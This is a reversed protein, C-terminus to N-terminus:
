YGKGFICDIELTSTSGCPFTLIFLWWNVSRGLYNLPDTCVSHASQINPLAYWLFFNFIIKGALCFKKSLYACCNTWAMVVFPIRWTHFLPIEQAAAAKQPDCVVVTFFITTSKKTLLGFNEREEKSLNRKWLFQPTRWHTTEKTGTHSMWCRSANIRHSYNRAASACPTKLRPQLCM